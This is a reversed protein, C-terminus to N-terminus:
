ENKVGFCKPKNVFRSIMLELEDAKRVVEDTLARRCSDGNKCEKYFKCFTMDKYTM